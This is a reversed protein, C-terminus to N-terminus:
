TTASGINGAIVEGVNIGIGLRDRDQLARAM